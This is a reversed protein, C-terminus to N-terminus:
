FSTKKVTEINYYYEGSESPLSQEDSKRKEGRGTQIPEVPLDNDRTLDDGIPEWLIDKENINRILDDDDDDNGYLATLSEM